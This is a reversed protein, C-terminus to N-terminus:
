DRKLKGVAIGFGALAAVFIFVWSVFALDVGTRSVPLQRFGGTLHSWWVSYDFIDLISHGIIGPILSQTRWALIGLLISAFVIQPWIPRAWSHNLHILMFILSTVGIAVVPGYQKELPRQMYGRFGIEESVGAVISGMVLLAWAVWVPVRDLVTYEGTFAADPFPLIRFTLVFSAQVIVVFLLAGGLGWIWTRAPLRTLRFQEKRYQAGLGPGLRGAFFKWFLWLVPIMPLISWPAPIFALAASWLAIGLSSVLFGGPISRLLVALHRM